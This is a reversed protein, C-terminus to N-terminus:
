TMASPTWGTVNTEFTPNSLLNATAYSGTSLYPMYGFTQFINSAPDFGPIDKKRGYEITEGGFKVSRVYSTDPKYM